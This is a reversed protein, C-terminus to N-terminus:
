LCWGIDMLVCHLHLRVHYNPDGKPVSPADTKYSKRFGADGEYPLGLSMDEGEIGRHVHGSFGGGGSRDKEETTGQFVRQLCPLFSSVSFM